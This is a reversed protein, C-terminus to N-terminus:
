RRLTQWMGLLNGEPDKFYCVIGMDGVPTPEKVVKGGAAKVREAAAEIEAVEVVLVPSRITEDRQLMGGNIAGPEKPRYDTGVATTNVMHYPKGPTGSIQWDFVESYFKKAREVQDVPIEFHVIRDM